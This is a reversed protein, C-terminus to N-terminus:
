TIYFEQQTVFFCFYYKGSPNAMKALKNDYNSAVIYHFLHVVISAQFSYYYYYYYLCKSVEPFHSREQQIWM